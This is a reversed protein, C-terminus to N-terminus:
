DDSDCVNQLELVRVVEGQTEPLEVRLGEDTIRCAVSEGNLLQARVDGDASLGLLTQAGPKADSILAFVRDDRCTFRIRTGELTDGEARRWPRTGYIAEGSDSLFEGLWRLRDAQIEPIQADEGRPGVNLLLNGNKSVIDVFDNLLDHRSLHDEPKSLRNYGFSQDIGRVCEWKKERSEPFTSYEPTHYDCHPPPPPHLASGRKRIGRAVLADALYRLGRFRLARTFVNPTIWRDNVLSEPIENYYDAFLQWLREPSHPWAIDNWLIEPQYREILERTQAEAYDPYDGGPISALFDAPTRLPAPNFTWDIGGSYYIGFHLGRKRVASALEGVLDRKSFWDPRRPNRIGTPWLCYGDHHKTVLVFYRAGSAAFLDAWGEPDWDALGAEYIAQFDTYPRGGWHERHHRAAPSWPFRISNQYWESYPSLPQFNWYDEVILEQITRGRPAYAPVSALSWHMFIGLKADEFWDPVRHRKLDELEPRWPGEPFHSM